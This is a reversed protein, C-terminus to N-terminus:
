FRPGIFGPPYIIGSRLRSTNVAPQLNAPQAQPAAVAPQIQPAGAANGSHVGEVVEVARGEPNVRGSNYTDYNLRETVGSNGANPDTWKWRGSADQNPNASPTAELAGVSTGLVQGGESRSLATSLNNSYLTAAQIVSDIGRSLSDMLTQKQTGDRMQAVVELQSRFSNLLGRLESQRQSLAAQPNAALQDGFPVAPGQSITTGIGPIQSPASAAKLVSGSRALDSNITQTLQDNQQLDQPPPAVPTAPATAPLQDAGSEAKAETAWGSQITEQPTITTAPLGAQVDRFVKDSKMQQSLGQAQRVLKDFENSDQGINVDAASPAATGIAGGIAIGGLSAPQPVAPGSVGLNPNAGMSETGEPKINGVMTSGPSEAGLVPQATATRVPSATEASPVMAAPNTSREEAIMRLLSGINSTGFGYPSM